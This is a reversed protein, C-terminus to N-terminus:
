QDREAGGGGGGTPRSDLYEKVDDPRYRVLADSVKLCRPGKKFLRWRRVTAVSIGCIRAVDHETLLSTLERATAKM